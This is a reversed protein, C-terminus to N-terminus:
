IINDFTISEIPKKVPTPKNNSFDLFQADNIKFEKNNLHLRM